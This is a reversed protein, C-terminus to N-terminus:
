ATALVAIGLPIIALLGLQMWTPLEEEEARTPAEEEPTWPNMLPYIDQNNDNIVYSADWMGSENMEKADSYRNEYDSWYNGGSPYGEDWANTSNHSYAQETNNVFNCHCIINESSNTPM